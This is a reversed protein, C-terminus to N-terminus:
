LLGLAFTYNNEASFHFRQLLYSVTRTIAIGGSQATIHGSDKGTDDQFVLNFSKGKNM